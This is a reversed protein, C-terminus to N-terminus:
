KRAKVQFFDDMQVNVQMPLVTVTKANDALIGFVLSNENIGTFWVKAGAVIGVTNGDKDVETLEENITYVQNKIIVQPDNATPIIGGINRRMFAVVRDELTAGKVEEEVEVSRAVVRRFPNTTIPAGQTLAKRSNPMVELNNFQVSSNVPGCLVSTATGAVIGSLILMKFSM